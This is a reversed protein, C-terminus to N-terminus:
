RKTSRGVAEKFVRSRAVGPRREPAYVTVIIRGDVRAVADLTKPQIRWEFIPSKIAAEIGVNFERSQAQDWLLRRSKPLAEVLAVLRSILRDAHAKHGSGGVELRAGYHRGWKGVHLVDVKEGWAQVLRELPAKSVIDLDVNLVHTPENDTRAPKV